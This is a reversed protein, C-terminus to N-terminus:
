FIHKLCGLGCCVKEITITGTIGDCDCTITVDACWPFRYTKKVTCCPEEEDAEQARTLSAVSRVSPVPAVSRAPVPTRPSAGSFALGVVTIAVFAVTMRGGALTMCAKLKSWSSEM